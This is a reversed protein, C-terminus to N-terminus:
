QIRQCNKITIKKHKKTTDPHFYICTNLEHKRRKDTYTNSLNLFNANITNM